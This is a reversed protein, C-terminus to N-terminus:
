IMEGVTEEGGSGNVLIIFLVFRRCHLAVQDRLEVGQDMVRGWNKKCRTAESGRVKSGERREARGGDAV